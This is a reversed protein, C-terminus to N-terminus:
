LQPFSADLIAEERPAPVRLMPETFNPIAEGTYLCLLLPFGSRDSYAPAVFGAITELNMIDASQSKVHEM